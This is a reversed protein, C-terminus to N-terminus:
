QISLKFVTGKSGSGGQSTTGYLNGDSGKVLGGLPNQGDSGGFSHVLTFTGSPTIRYITGLNSAGGLSTVGYFNGDGAQVLGGYDPGMGDNATPTFRHLLTFAGAPTVKFVTGCLSTTAGPASSCQGPGEYATTGYFNGDTGLVLGATPADGDVLENFSHVLSAVGGPTIKYVSGNGYAGGLRTTGYFNGDSDQILGSSPWSVGEQNQFSHVTTLVGALTIKFVTGNFQAGGTQTTGWLNGDSGQILGNNPEVGDGSGFTYLTTVSGSPTIKFVTGSWTTGYLNGDSAQLLNNNPVPPIPSDVTPGFSYLVSLNGAPTMRFVTGYNNAGGFRTTGYFNGDRGQVLAGYEPTDGNTGNFNVLTTFMQAPPGSSGTSTVTLTKGPLYAVDGSRDSQQVQNKYDAIAMPIWTGATVSPDLNVTGSCPATSGVTVSATGDCYLHWPIATNTTGDTSFLVATEFPPADATGQNQVEIDVAISGGVMATNPLTFKTIVLKATNSPTNVGGAWTAFLKAADVSGWGTAQDYGRGASYGYSGSQGCDPTSGPVCPVINSGATIDHYVSPATQALTYLMSNISGLGPQTQAKKSVLYQNLLALMGAFVPTSASTGGIALINGGSVVLYPDHALSANFSIDPVDRAGDTTPVGPGAQWTPKPWYMSAGGGGAAFGPGSEGFGGGGLNQAIVSEDNWATEPIYGTATGGNPGPTSLWYNGNGENFETGGVATVEPLSAPMSVSMRTLAVSWPGGQDECGAAGSDGSSSVWTIGEAAAKQSYAHLFDFDGPMLHWECVDYSTSLIPAVQQDIAYFTSTFLDPSFVYILNAHPAIAGSWELDLDPEGVDVPGPNQTNPVLLKTPDNAPLHLMTRFAEIDSLDIDSEGPVAITIGTGDIGGQYIPAVDYIAALDDPVILNNGNGDQFQPRIGSPMNALKGITKIRPRSTPKFDDMGRVVEVLDAMDRPISPASAAAYHDQGNVRYRHIPALFVRDVLGATGSFMIMDRGRSVMVVKFGGMELWAKMADIDKGSIGFRDAYQEPTLWHHYLPSNLDQLDTLLQDLKAQQQSTKKLGLVMINLPLTSDAPGLDFEPKALPHLSGRLLVRDYDSIAGSLRDPQGWLAVPILVLPTVLLCFRKAHHMDFRWDFDLLRKM